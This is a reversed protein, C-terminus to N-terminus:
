MSYVLLYQLDNFGKSMFKRGVSFSEMPSYDLPIRLYFPRNRLSKMKTRQCEESAKVFMFIRTMMNDM